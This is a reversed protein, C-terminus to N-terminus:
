VGEAELDENFLPLNLDAMAFHCEGFARSAERLLKTNFSERRLSGSIGLLAVM